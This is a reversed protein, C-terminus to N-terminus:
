RRRPRRRHRRRRRSWPRPLHPESRGVNMAPPQPLRQRRHPLYTGVLFLQLSSFLLPLICALLLRASIQRWGASGGMGALLALAAWAALLRAAALDISFTPHGTLVLGIGAREVRQRFNDFPLTVTEGALTHVLAAVRGADDDAGASGLMARLRVARALFADATIERVLAVVDEFRVEGADMRRTLALAQLLIPNSFPDLHAHSRAEQLADRLQRGLDAAAVGQGGATAAEPGDMM